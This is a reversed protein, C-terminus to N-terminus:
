KDFGNVCELRNLYILIDKNQESDRILSTFVLKVGRDLVFGKIESTLEEIFNLEGFGIVSSKLNVNLGIVLLSLVPEPWHISQFKWHIKIIVLFKYLLIKQIKLLTEQFENKSLNKQNLSPVLFNSIEM